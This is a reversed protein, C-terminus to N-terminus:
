PSVCADNERGQCWVVRKTLIWGYVFQNQYMSISVYVDRLRQKRIMHSKLLGWWVCFAANTRGWGGLVRLDELSDQCFFDMIGQQLFDDAYDIWSGGDIKYWVMQKYLSATIIRHWNSKQVRSVKVLIVLMVFEVGRQDLAVYEVRM